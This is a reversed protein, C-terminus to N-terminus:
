TAGRGLSGPLIRHDKFLRGSGAIRHGKGYRRRRRVSASIGVWLLAVSTPEPVSTAQAIETTVTAIQSSLQAGHAIFANDILTYDAGNVVGDYNFDGNSWGTLGMNFGNDILTYDSSNVVGDLNADGYYTYKVLVDSASVTQGDFTSYFPTGTPSQNGSNQIVGLTTLRSVNSAAASSVIGGSGQWVTGSPNYGEAIESRISGLSGNHVILDNGSLDLLGTWAGLSGAFTLGGVVLVSRSQITAPQAISVSGNSALNLSALTIARISTGASANFDLAATQGVAANAALLDTPDGVTLNTATPFSGTGTVNVAGSHIVTDGTYTETAALLLSGPGYVQVGGAGGIPGSLTLTAHYENAITVGNSLNIQASITQNGAANYISPVGSASPDNNNIFLTGGSGQAITYNANASNFIVHGVIRNGDLTITGNATLGPSSPGFDVTEGAASPVGDDEAWNGAAGWSGGTSGAGTNLNGWLQNTVAASAAPAFAIGRLTTSPAAYVANASSLTSAGSISGSGGTDVIEWLYQYDDIFVTATNGSVSVAVDQPSDPLTVVGLNTWTGQILAYKTLQNHTSNSEYLLETGNALTVFKPSQNGQIDGDGLNGLAGAAQLPTYTPANVFNPAGSSSNAVPLGTGLQYLTHEGAPSNNSGGSAYLQGNYIEPTRIDEGYGGNLSLSVTSGATTYRLGGTDLSSASGYPKGGNGSTWFQTGDLSAVARMSVGIYNTYNGNGDQLSTLQNSDDLSGDSHLVTIVRPVVNPFTGSANGDTSGVANLYTGMELSHGDLALTLQGDNDGTHPLTLGLGSTGNYSLSNVPLSITNVVASFSSTNFEKLTVSDSNGGGDGNLQVLVLDNPSQFSGGSASGAALAAAALLACIKLDIKTQM